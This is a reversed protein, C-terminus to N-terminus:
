KAYTSIRFPKIYVFCTVASELSTVSANKTAEDELSSLLVFM